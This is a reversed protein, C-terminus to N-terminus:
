RHDVVMQSVKRTFELYTTHPVGLADVIGTEPLVERGVERIKNLLESNSVESEELTIMCDESMDSLHLQKGDKDQVALTFYVGTPEIGYPNITVWLDEKETYYTAETYERSLFMASGGLDEESQANLTSMYCDMYIDGICEGLSSVEPADKGQIYAQVVSWGEDLIYQFQDRPIDVIENSGHKMLRLGLGEVFTLACPEKFLWEKEGQTITIVFHDPYALAMYSWAGKKATVIDNGSWTADQMRSEVAHRLLGFFINARGIHSMFKSLNPIRGVRADEMNDVPCEPYSKYFEEDFSCEADTLTQPARAFVTRDAMIRNNLHLTMERVHEVSPMTNTTNAVSAAAAGTQNLTKM